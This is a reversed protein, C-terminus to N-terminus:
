FEQTKILFGDMIEFSEKFYFIKLIGISVRLLTTWFAGPDTYGCHMLGLSLSVSLHWKQGGTVMASPKFSSELNM